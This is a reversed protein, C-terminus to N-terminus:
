AQVREAHKATYITHQLLENPADEPSWQIKLQMTQCLPCMGNQMVTFCEDYLTEPPPINPPDFSTRELMDFKITTTEAIEDLLLGCTPATGVAMSNLVIAAVEAIEKNEALQINGFIVYCDDYITGNDANTTDDRQLIPGSTQPGVLLAKVGVAIEVSQVASTGGEVEARPSWVFGSEPAAVPSYRFWGVAGDAVFLATDGSDQEHWTVYTKTPDYLKQTIGGTTVKRFQDGIPFGTETYGASPDLSVQKNANTYMHITAGIMDLANYSLLGIGKAYRTPFFPNSDTGTGWIAIVDAANFILLAGNNLTVPEMRAVQNQTDIVNSPSWAENGSGITVDPGTAWYVKSGVAGWIRGMHYALPGLGTPPPDNMDNIPAEIQINLDDDPHNDVYTWAGGNPPAPIEDLYYPTGGGQLTRYIVITDVQPDTSGPGSVIIQSGSSITVPQSLPSATSVSDTVSNKYSYAWQWPETGDISYAGANQWWANNDQTVAGDNETWVPEADNSMGSQIIKQLYGNSDEILQYPSVPSASLLSALAFCNGFGSWQNSSGDQYIFAGTLNSGITASYGHGRNNTSALWGSM